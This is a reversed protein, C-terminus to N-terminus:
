QGTQAFSSSFYTPVSNFRYFQSPRGASDGEDSQRGARGESNEQCLPPVAGRLKGNIRHFNFLASPFRRPSPRTARDPEGIEM